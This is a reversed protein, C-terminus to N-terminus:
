RKEEGKDVEGERGGAWLKKSVMEPDAAKAPARRNELGKLPARWWTERTKDPEAKLLTITVEKPQGPGPNDPFFLLSPVPCFVSSNLLFPQLVLM